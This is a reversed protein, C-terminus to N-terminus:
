LRKFSKWLAIVILAQLRIDLEDSIKKLAEYVEEPVRLTIQKREMTLREKM